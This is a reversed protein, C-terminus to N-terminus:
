LQWDIIVEKLVLSRVDGPKGWEVKSEVQFETDGIGGDHDIRISRIFLTEYTDGALTYNYKNTTTSYRLYPCAGACSTTTDTFVNVICYQGSCNSLDYVGGPSILDSGTEGANNNTGIRFRVFEIGEQALFSATIQDRAILSLSVGQYAITLPGVVAVLLITIGVLTEILTFGRVKKAFPHPTFGWVKKYLNHPTVGGVLNKKKKNGVASNKSLSFNPTYSPLGGCWTKRKETVKIDGLLFNPTPTFGKKQKKLNKFNNKM